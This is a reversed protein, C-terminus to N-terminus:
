KRGEARQARLSSLSPRPIGTEIVDVLQAATSLAIGAPDKSARSLGIPCTISTIKEESVGRARLRKRFGSWKRESGILGLFAFNKRELARELITFDLAHDHTMVLVLSDDPLTDIEGEPADLCRLEFPADTPPAPVLEEERRGDILLVDAKMWPALRALAQGVHGAGFIAIRRRHWRYTEFFLTAAGGCCQGTKEALPYEVAESVAGDRALLEAAHERALHELRGGGVTGWVVADGTVIMRAGAERPTSGKAATVVVVACPKGAARLEALKEIWSLADM